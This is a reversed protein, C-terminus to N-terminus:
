GARYGILLMQSVLCLCGRWGSCVHASHCPLTILTGRVVLDADLVGRLASWQDLTLAAMVTQGSHQLAYLPALTPRLFSLLGSLWLLKGTLKEVDHRSVHRADLVQQLLSLLRQQKASEMQVTGTLLDIRWGIWVPQSSLSAKRWSMPVQLALLLIAIFASLLPSACKRLLCLLDDVYIMLAHNVFLLRRLLRCLLGATRSWYYSSARAGFNLTLCQYLKDRHHFCLLGQDEPRIKIRRHAKSVDLVLACLEGQAPSLPLCRRLHSLTPNCSRNPLATNETVASVSSDVVLRPARGPALVLGLKGIACHACQDRLAAVGGPVERIWGEEVEERLLTDVTAPESLASQWASACCQLPRPNPDPPLGPAMVPCPKLRYNVGLPVGTCLQDTFAADPDRCIESMVRLLHLRFPQGAPASLCRAWVADSTVGMWARLDALFPCMQGESIPPTKDPGGLHRLIQPLLGTRQLSESWLRRLGGLLPVFWNATSCTGCGDEIRRAPLSRALPQLPRFGSLIHRRVDRQLLVM